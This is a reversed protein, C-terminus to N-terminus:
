TAEITTLHNDWRVHDFQQTNMTLSTANDQALVRGKGSTAVFKNNLLSLGAGDRLSIRQLFEDSNLDWFSVFDGRPCSIAVLQQSENICVSATYQNMARWLPEKATLFQLSSEGHHSIALPQLDNSAGQYQLGAIVKGNSAVDLHRISLHHNDLRFHEVVKGAALDLYTLAPSMSDLNLKKRPWQPHTKIGGNAIVLTNGDPMLACQHPGVGGADLVDIVQYNAADRLVIEGRGKVFNNEVTLLTQQDQSFVGHGFFHQGQKANVVATVEGSQYDVEMLFTGPRRACIIAHGPKSPHAWASHGRAPLRVKNILKGSLDFAASYHENNSTSFASVLWQKSSREATLESGHGYSDNARWLAGLAATGALAGSGLLFHRRNLM